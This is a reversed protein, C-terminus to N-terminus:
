RKKINTDHNVKKKKKYWMKPKHPPLVCSGDIVGVEIRRGCIPCRIRKKNKGSEPKESYPVLKGNKTEISGFCLKKPM